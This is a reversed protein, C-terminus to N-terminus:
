SEVVTKPASFESTNGGPGTATATINQGLMIHKKTSYTFSADGSGDTSVLQSGLFTKGEDTGKPNSFFQVRFTQNPTSDLEGRVMLAALMVGLALIKSVTARSQILQMM